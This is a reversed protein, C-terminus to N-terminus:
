NTKSGPTGLIKLIWVPLKVEKNSLMKKWQSDRLRANIDYVFEYYSMMLGTVVRHDTINYVIKLPYGTAVELVKGTNPDTHVDAVKEPVDLSKGDIDLLTNNKLFFRLEDMDKEKPIGDKEELSVKLMLELLRNLEGLNKSVKLGTTIKILKATLTRMDGIVDSYPEVLCLGKRLNQPPMSTIGVTYSQKGYLLTAHKLLAWTSLNTILKKIEYSDDNFIFIPSEKKALIYQHQIGLLNHYLSLNFISDGYDEVMNRLNEIEFLYNKFRDEEYTDTLIDLAKESGLVAQVDLGRPLLRPKDKTGVKNYVLQQFIYSDFIWRQGFLKISILDVSPTDRDTILTSYIGPRASQKLGEKIRGDFSSSCLANQPVVNYGKVIKMFDLPSLDDSKGVIENIIQTIELYRQKIDPNNTIIMSLIIAAGMNKSAVIKESNFPYFGMRGLYMMARFYNQMKKTRAYHSRPRYQSYDEKIGFVPSIHIGRAKQILMVEKKLDDSNLLTNDLTLFYLPIRIYADVLLAAEKARICKTYRYRKNKNLMNKLLEILKNYIINEEIEYISEDFLQGFVYFPLDLTVVIDSSRQKALTEYGHVLGKKIGSTDIYFGRYTNNSSGTIMAFLLLLTM